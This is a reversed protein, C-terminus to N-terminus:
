RQWGLNGVTLQLRHAQVGHPTRLQLHRELRPLDYGRMQPRVGVVSFGVGFQNQWRALAGAFPCESDIGVGQAAIALRNSDFCGFM